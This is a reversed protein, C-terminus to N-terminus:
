GSERLEPNENINGIIEIELFNYINRIISKYEIEFNAGGYRKCWVVRWALYMTSWFVVYNTDSGKPRIVDGQYIMKGTKDPKGSPWELIVEDLFVTFESMTDHYRVTLQGTDYNIAMVDLYTKKKKHWARPRPIKSETM